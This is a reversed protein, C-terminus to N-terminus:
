ALVPVDEILGRAIAIDERAQDGAAAGILVYRKRRRPLVADLDPRCAANHIAAIMALTSKGCQRAIAWVHTRVAPDELSRLLEVQAPWLTISGGVLRDD